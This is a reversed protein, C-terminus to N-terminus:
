VTPEGGAAIRESLTESPAEPLGELNSVGGGLVIVDPDLVNVINALAHVVRDRHRALCAVASADDNACTANM